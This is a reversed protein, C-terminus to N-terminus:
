RNMVVQEAFYSQVQALFDQHAKDDRIVRTHKRRWEDRIRHQAPTYHELVNPDNELRLKVMRVLSSNEGLGSLLACFERWKM